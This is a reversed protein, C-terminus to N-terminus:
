RKPSRASLAAAVAALGVSSPEPISQLSLSLGVKALAARMIAVDRLDTVGDLNQDGLSWALDTNGSTSSRWGQRFLQADAQDIAGDFNLDGYIRRFDFGRIENEGAIIEYETGNVVLTFPSDSTVVVNGEGDSVLDATVDGIHLGEIGLRGPRELRWTVTNSTADVDFGLVNEVFLSIPGLASWGTFNPRSINNPGTAPRAEDPDYVEWISAGHEPDDYETWTKYMHQILNYATEDAEGFREYKELAKVGMYATPLWVGGRWYDGDPDYDQDNRAVSPWPVAGGLQNPDNVMEAMRAVQEDSAMEALVPWFSAPTKVRMPELTNVNIDYYTGDEEDWYYTNVVDKIENYTNMWQASEANNGLAEHLRAISLASLGQQAIADVWLMDGKENRGRPTNDMGSYNGINGWHYGLLNGQSDNVRENHTWRLSNTNENGPVKTGVPVTDFWEFHKQLYQDENILESIHATNKQAKYNEWETWAYLPPNDPHGNVLPFSDFDDHIPQYFNQLSEVGPFSQPAYKTFLSMFATDWPWIINASHAEDMYPSQPLRPDVVVHDAAGEWARWYFDVLGPQADYIPKPVEDRWAEGQALCPLPAAIAAVGIALARISRLITKMM